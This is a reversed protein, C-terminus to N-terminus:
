PSTITTPNPDTAFRAAFISADVCPLDWDLILIEPPQLQSLVNWADVGNDVLVMEYGWRLIWHKL